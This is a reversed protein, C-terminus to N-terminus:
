RVLAVPLKRRVLTAADPRLHLTEHEIGKAWKVPLRIPQQEFLDGRSELHSRQQVRDTRSGMADRRDGAADTTRRGRHGARDIPQDTHSQSSALDREAFRLAFRLATEVPNGIREEAQPEANDCRM